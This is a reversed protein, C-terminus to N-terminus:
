ASYLTHVIYMFISDLFVFTTLIMYANCTYKTRKKYFTILFRYETSQWQDAFKILNTSGIEANNIKRLPERSYSSYITVLSCYHLEETKVICDVIPYIYYSRATNSPYGVCLLPSFVTAAAKFFIM